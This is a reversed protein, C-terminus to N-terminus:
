SLKEQENQSEIALPMSNMLKSALDRASAVIEEQLIEIMKKCKTSDLIIALEIKVGNKFKCEGVYLDPKTWDQRISLNSLIWQDSTNEM